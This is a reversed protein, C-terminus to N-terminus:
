IKQMHAKISISGVVFNYSEEFGKWHYTALRYLFSCSIIIITFYKYCINGWPVQTKGQPFKMTRQALQRKGQPVIM